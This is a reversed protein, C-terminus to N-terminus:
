PTAPVKKVPPVKPVAAVKGPVAPIKPEPEDKKQQDLRELEESHDIGVMERATQKSIIGNEIYTKSLDALGKLDRQFIPSWAIDFKSSDKWMGEEKFIRIFLDRLGTGWIQQRTQIMMQFSDGAFMAVGRSSDSEYIMHQPVGCAMIIYRFVRDILDSIPFSKAFDLVEAKSNEPLLLNRGPRM